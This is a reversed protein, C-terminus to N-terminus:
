STSGSPSQRSGHFHGSSELCTNVKSQQDPQLKSMVQDKLAQRDAKLKAKDNNVTITDQGVVSKDAGNNLDAQLKQHDTNLAQFDAQMTAKGSALIGDIATQQDPTLNAAALCKQIGRSHGFGMHGGGANDDALANLSVAATALGVCMLIRSLRKM